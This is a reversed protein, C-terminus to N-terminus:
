AKIENLGFRPSLLLEGLGLRAAVRCLLKEQRRHLMQAERCLEAVILSSTKDPGLDQTDKTTELLDCLPTCLPKM